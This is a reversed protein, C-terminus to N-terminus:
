HLWRAHGTVQAPALRRDTSDFDHYEDYINKLKKGNFTWNLQGM